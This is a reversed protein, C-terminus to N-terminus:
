KPPTNPFKKIFGEIFDTGAYGATIFAIVTSKDFSTPTDSSVAALVGAIGGIAFGIFLSFAIQQYEILQQAPTNSKMAEDYVKKLGVIVRIGQGAAGLIAGVAIVILTNLPTSGTNMATTNPSSPNAPTTFRVTKATSISASGDSGDSGAVPALDDTPDLVEISTIPHVEWCSARWNRNSANDPNTSFAQGEHELDYTLWGQIKVMHGILKEKLTETSWDTGQEEMLERLRPTVEVIMRNEPGTQRSDPTLEIHTDKFMKDTTKCNCTETGGPKVDFVYGTIEAAKQQDFKGEIANTAILKQLTVSRDFDSTAPFVFRNKFTNLTFEKSGQKASGHLGCSTGDIILNTLDNPQSNGQSHGGICALALCFLLISRRM